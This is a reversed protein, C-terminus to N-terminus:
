GGNDIGEMEWFWEAEEETENGSIIINKNLYSVDWDPHREEIYKIPNTACKGGESKMVFLMVVLGVLLLTVIVDGYL